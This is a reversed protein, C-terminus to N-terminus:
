KDCKPCCFSKSRSLMHIWIKDSNEEISVIELETPYFWQLDLSSNVSMWIGSREKKFVNIKGTIFWLFCKILIHPFFGAASYYDSCYLILPASNMIRYKSVHHIPSNLLTKRLLHFNYECPVIPYWILGRM